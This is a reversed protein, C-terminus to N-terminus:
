LWEMNCDSRVIAICHFHKGSLAKVYAHYIIGNYQELMHKPAVIIWAGIGVPSSDSNVNQTSASTKLISSGM